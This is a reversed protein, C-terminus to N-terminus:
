PPITATSPQEPEVQISEDISQQPSLSAHRIQINQPVPVEEVSNTDEPQSQTGELMQTDRAERIIDEESLILEQPVQMKEEDRISVQHHGTM